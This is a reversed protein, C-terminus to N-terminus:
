PQSSTNEFLMRRLIGPTLMSLPNVSIQPDDTTGGITYTAAVIAGNDGGTLINGIVPIKGIIRSMGSLPAATGHLAIENRKTDIRGEFTLGLSAGSTTGNEVLYLDGAPDIRWEFDTELRAFGLQQKELVGLIGPLSLANLLRALVPANWITFDDIRAKGKVDGFRGDPLPMGGVKLKGGIINPYLNFARLTAGADDAEIRLSLRNDSMPTYHVHLEGKGVVADLDFQEIQAGSTAKTYATVNKITVKDSTRMEDINMSIEYPRSSSKTKGETHKKESQLIPRVDLFSGNLVIKLLDDQTGIKVNLRNDGFALGSMDMSEIIPEDQVTKFGIQAKNISLERGTVTLADISHLDGNRLNLSLSIASAEGHRKQIGLSPVNISAGQMDLNMDIKARDGDPEQRYILETGIMGAIYDANDKMFARRIADNATLKAEISSLYDYGQQKKFFEHWTISMPQGQLRGSGAIKLDHATVAVDFMGDSLNLGRLIDSFDVNSLTGKVDVAMDEIATNALIPFSINAVLETSGKAQRAELGIKDLANIPDKEIYDFVASIDGSIPLHLVATGQGPTVLDDFNLTGGKVTLGGVDANEINLVLAADKYHGTGKIKTAPIMPNNYDVMMDEYGFRVDIASINERDFTMYGTLDTYVGNRIRKVLWIHALLNDKDPPWFRTFWVQPLRDISLNVHGTVREMDAPHRIMGMLSITATDDILASFCDIRLADETEDKTMSIDINKLTISEQKEPSVPFTLYGEDAISNFTFSTLTWTDDMTLGIDATAKMDIDWGTPLGPMFQMLNKIPTDLVQGKIHIALPNNMTAFDLRISNHEGGGFPLTFFGSMTRENNSAIDMNISTSVPDFIRTTGLMKDRYIVRARDIRLTNLVPFDYLLNGQTIVASISNEHTEEPSELGIGAMHIHGDEQRTLLLSIRSIWVDEIRIQGLFLHRISLSLNVEPAHLFPGRNNRVTVKNAKFDIFNDNDGWDLSLIEIDFDLDTSQDNLADKIHPLAVSLDISGSSLRWSLLCTCILALLLCSAFIHWLIRAGIIIQKKM